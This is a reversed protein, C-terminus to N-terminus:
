QSLIVIGLSDEPDAGFRVDAFGSVINRGTDQDQFFDGNVNGTVAEGDIAGALGAAMRTGSITGNFTTAGAVNSAVSASTLVPNIRAFDGMSGNVTNATFDAGMQVRGYYIQGTPNSTTPVVRTITISGDYTANASPLVPTLKGASLQTSIWVANGGADAVDTVSWSGSGLARVPKYAKGFNPDLTPDIIRNVLMEPDSSGGCASLVVLSAVCALANRVTKVANKMNVGLDSRVNRPFDEASLQRHPFDKRLTGAFASGIRSIRM